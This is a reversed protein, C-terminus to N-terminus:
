QTLDYEELEGRATTVYEHTAVRQDSAFFGRGPVIAIWAGGDLVYMRALVAGDDPSHLRVADDRGISVVLDGHASLRRPEVGAASTLRRTRRGDWVRIAGSDDLGTYVSGDSVDVSIAAGLYEGPIRFAVRSRELNSGSHVQLITEPTRGDIDVGISYARGRLPDYALAYVFAAGNTIPATEGTRPDLRVLSSGLVGEGSSGIVVGAAARVIAQANVSRYGFGSRQTTDAAFVLAEGQRSLAAIGDASFAVDRAGHVGDSQWATLEFATPDYLWLEGASAGPTWLAYAGEGSPLFRAGRAADLVLSRTQVSRANQLGTATGTFGDTVIAILQGETAIDLRGELALVDHVPQILDRAFVKPSLEPDDWRWITGNVEAGVFAREGSAAARAAAAGPNPLRATNAGFRGAAVSVLEFSSTEGPRRHVLLEADSWPSPHTGVFGVASREDTVAGSLLDVLVLRRTAPDYGAAYRRGPLLRLQELGARSSFQAQISGGDLNYYTITGSRRSYAVIREGSSSPAHWTVTAQTTRVLTRRRGSSLDLFRVSPNSPVSYSVFRGNESVALSLIEDETSHTFVRRRSEWDWLVLQHVAESTVLHVLARSGRTLPLIRLVRSNHQIMTSGKAGTALDWAIVNGATDGSLVVGHEPQLAITSVPDSHSSRLQILEQARISPVAVSFAVTLAAWFAATTRQARHLHM